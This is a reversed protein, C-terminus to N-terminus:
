AAVETNTLSETPVLPIGEFETPTQIRMTSSTIAQLNQRYQELSRPTLFIVDPRYSLGMKTNVLDGLMDGTLTKGTASAHLNKIRGVYRTSGVFLGPRSVLEQIIGTVPKGNSGTFDGVRPDSIVNQGNNGSLWQVADEGFKVAWVSSTASGTGTADVTYSSSVAQLLGPCGKADVTTGYFFVQGLWKLYAAMFARAEKALLKAASNDITEALKDIGWRPTLACCSATRKESRSKQPDTGENMNRAAITPLEVLATTEYTVGAITRAAAVNPIQQKTLPHIGTVEPTAVMTEDIVVNQDGLGSKMIDLLNLFGAPM